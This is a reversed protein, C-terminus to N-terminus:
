LSLESEKFIAVINNKNLYHEIEKREQNSIKSGFMVEMNTLMKPCLDMFIKFYKANEIDCLKLVRNEDMEGCMAYKPLFTIQYRWENLFAWKTDKRKSISQMSIGELLGHSFRFYNRSKVENDFSIKQLFDDVFPIIVHTSALDLLLSFNRIPMINNKDFNGIQTNDIRIIKNNDHVYYYFPFVPLRFRIGKGNNGYKKWMKRSENIESSWSNAFYYNGAHKMNVATQEIKDDFACLNSFMMKKSAIIKIFSSVSTYHYLYEPYGMKELMIFAM